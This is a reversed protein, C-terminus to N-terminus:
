RQVKDRNMGLFERALQRGREALNPKGRNRAEACYGTLRLYANRMGKDEPGYRTDSQIYSDRIKDVLEDDTLEIANAQKANDLM